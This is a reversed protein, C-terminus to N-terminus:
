KLLLLSLIKQGDALKIRHFEVILLKSFIHSDIFIFGNQRVLIHVIIHSTKDKLTSTKPPNVSYPDLDLINIECLLYISKNMSRFLNLIIFLKEKNFVRLPVSM